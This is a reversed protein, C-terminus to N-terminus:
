FLISALQWTRPKKAMGCLCWVLGMDGTSEIDLTVLGM